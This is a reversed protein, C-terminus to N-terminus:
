PGQEGVKTLTRAAGARDRQALSVDLGLEARGRGSVFGDVLHRVEGVGGHLREIAGDFDIAIPTLNPRARLELAVILIAGPASHACSLSGARLPPRSM